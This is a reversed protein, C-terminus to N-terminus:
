IYSGAGKLRDSVGNWLNSTIRQRLGSLNTGAMYFKTICLIPLDKIRGGSNSSEEM